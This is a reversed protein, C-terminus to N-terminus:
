LRILKTVYKMSGSKIHITYVGSAINSLDVSFRSETIQAKHIIENMSNCITIYGINLETSSKLNINLSGDNPNPYILVTQSSLKDNLVSIYSYYHCSSTDSCEGNTIIVAYLGSESPEFSRSTASQIAVFGPCKVWQYKANDENATLSNGSISVQTDIELIDLDYIAIQYQPGKIIKAERYKGAETFVQGGITTFSQCISSDIFITDRSLPIIDVLRIPYTHSWQGQNTQCRYYLRHKEISLNKDAVTPSSFQQLHSSPTDVDVHKGLAYGPDNDWFYEFGVITEISVSDIFNFHMTTTM